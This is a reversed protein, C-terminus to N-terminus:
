KELVKKWEEIMRQAIAKGELGQSRLITPTVSLNTHMRKWVKQTDLGMVSLIKALCEMEEFKVKITWEYQGNKIQDVFDKIRSIFRLVNKPPFIKQAFIDIMETQVFIAPWRCQPDLKEVVDFNRTPIGLIEVNLEKAIPIAKNFYKGRVFGDLPQFLREKSVSEILPVYKKMVLLTDKEVELNYNSIFRLGRLIRVPDSKINRGPDFSRLISRDLDMMGNCPDIPQKIIEGDKSIPFAISNITFDRRKLDEELSVYHSIDYKTGNIFTGVTEGTKSEMFIKFIIKELPTTTILDFEKPKIGILLDRVAGGVVFLNDLNQVIVQPIKM